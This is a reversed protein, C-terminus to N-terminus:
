IMMIIKKQEYFDETRKAAEEETELSPMDNDDNDDPRDDVNGNPRNGGRLGDRIDKLLKIVGEEQCGQVTRDLGMSFAKGLPSFELRAKDLM